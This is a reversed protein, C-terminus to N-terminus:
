VAKLRIEMKDPLHIQTDSYYYGICDEMYSRPIEYTGIIIPENVIHITLRQRHQRSCDVYNKKYETRGEKDCGNLEKVNIKRSRKKKSDSMDFEVQQSTEGSTDIIWTFLNGDVTINKVYQEIVADPIKEDMQNIEIKMFDSLVNLRQEKIEADSNDEIKNILESIELSINNIENEIDSKRKRYVEKSIDGNLCLDLLTDLKKNLAEIVSEKQSLIKKNDNMEEVDSIGDSIMEMALSYIEQKNSMIKRFIFDAQVELKWQPISPNDCIGETSLGKKIRTAITGTRMQRYCQLTYTKIGAKSIHNQRRNFTCGCKCRLKRVWVNDALPKGYYRGNRKTTKKSMMEQVKDFKEKSIITPHTGEVTVTDVDGHNIKKVQTLYDPVYEKRYVIIGCYFSNSLVRTIVGPQWITKGTSTKRGLRELEFQIKRLGYGNLYMDYIMRVTEAQEENIAFKNYGVRDYGLINGNGYIVGNKFTIMQGAKVRSSIKKSENQALTAMISLRLEGDEDNGTWINDEVFWVEVGFQKLIRTQQLTDVTNRAFRSVERTIILDFKGQEADHMMRLFNPRKNISTGTIGKDIYRECLVWNPNRKLIEDYYEIQNELASLQEEHETSVRAYIVVRIKSDTYNKRRM